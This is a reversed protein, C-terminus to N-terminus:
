SLAKSINETDILFGFLLGTELEAFDKLVAVVIITPKHHKTCRPPRTGLERQYTKLNISALRKQESLLELANFIFFMQKIQNDCKNM